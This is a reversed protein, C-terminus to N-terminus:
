LSLWGSRVWREFNGRRRKQQGQGRWDTLVEFEKEEKVAAEAKGSTPSGGRDWHTCFEKKPVDTSKIVRVLMYRKTLPKVTMLGNESRKQFGM